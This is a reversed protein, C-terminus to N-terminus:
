GEALGLHLAQQPEKLPDPIEGTRKAGVLPQLDGEPRLEARLRRRLGRSKRILNALADLGLAQM